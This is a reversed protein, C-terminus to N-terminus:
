LSLKKHKYEQIRPLFQNFNIDEAYHTVKLVQKLSKNPYTYEGFMNMPIGFFLKKRKINLFWEDAMNCAETYTMHKNAWNLNTIGHRVRTDSPNTNIEEEMTRNSTTDEWYGYKKYDQSITSLVDQVPDLPIELPWLHISEGQWNEEVWKLSRAISEKDEEPLGLILGLSGRYPGRESFYKKIDILGQQIKEPAMGKKILKATVPNMTEIGYYHGFFGLRALPDWDQKRSIMVDARIFGSFIPDINNRDVVEAFKVIKETTDNFTEDAVYYNKIGWRDYNDRLELEFDEADRSHDTKVGLIPYNCFACKFRCGRAFETTLWEWPQLDDREEYKIRLSKMPYAPYTQNASIVKKSGFFAPDFAIKVGSTGIIYKVLELIAYEAYGHIYYDVLTTKIRPKSQGGVIIAITPYTIKVWEIYQDIKDEWYSFFSSFGIFVTKSTVRAKTLEKLEELTFECAYEIVETDWEHERLFSAIRYPGTPRRLNLKHVNFFLAHHM